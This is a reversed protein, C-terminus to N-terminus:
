FCFLFNQETILKPTNTDLAGIDKQIGWIQFKLSFIPGLRNLRTVPEKYKYVLKEGKELGQTAIM